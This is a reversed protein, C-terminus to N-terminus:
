KEAEDEKPPLQGSARLDDALKQAWANTAEANAQLDKFTEVEAVEMVFSSQMPVDGDVIRFSHQTEQALLQGTLRVPEHLMSPSWDGSLRARIMQNPNPPPVHSCMGREPVLYVIRTGDEAPPAPIAFGGISVTEGDIQSNVATAAKKRRDAVVWRQELLAEADIGSQELQAQAQELKATSMAKQEASLDANELRAKEVAFARLDDLQDYDLDLFPDEYTQAEQDILDDWAILEASVPATLLACLAFGAASLLRFM